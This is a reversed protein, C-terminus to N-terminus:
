NPAGLWDPRLRKAAQTEGLALAKRYLTRAKLTDAGVERTQQWSALMNPDYTEALLFTMPGSEATEPAALIERAGSIDGSEIRRKARSLLEDVRAQLLEEKSPQVVKPAAPALVVAARHESVPRPAAVQAVTPRVDTKTPRVDSGPVRVQRVEAIKVAPAQEAAPRPGKQPGGLFGSLWLVAPVVVILGAILGLAAAGLQQRYWRDDDSLVPQRWTSPIPMPEDDHHPETILMGGASAQAVVPALTPTMTPPMPPSHAPRAYSLSSLGDKYPQQRQQNQSASVLAALSALESGTAAAGPPRKGSQGQAISQALLQALEQTLNATSGNSDARQPQGGAAYADRVM